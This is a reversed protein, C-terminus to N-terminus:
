PNLMKEFRELNQKEGIAVVMDGGQLKTQSSPNFLMEGEPKRVAVIILDLDKRIGSDQLAVDILRSSPHVPVEEMQIDRSKEMLTLELFDTVTPRLITQAIRHAGM